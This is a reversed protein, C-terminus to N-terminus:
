DLVAHFKRGFFASDSDLGKIRRCIFNFSADEVGADSHFSHELAMAVFNSHGMGCFLCDLFDAYLVEIQEDAVDPQRITATVFQHTFHPDVFIQWSDCEAAKTAFFVYLLGSFCTE